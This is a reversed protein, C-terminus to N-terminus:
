KKSTTSRTEKTNKIHFISFCEQLHFIERTFCLVNKWFNERYLFFKLSCNRFSINECNQYCAFLCFNVLKNVWWWLTSSEFAAFYLLPILQATKNPKGRFDQKRQSLISVQQNDTNISFASIDFLASLILGFSILIWMIQLSFSPFIQKFSAQHTFNAFM